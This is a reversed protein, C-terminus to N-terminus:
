SPLRRVIIHHPLGSTADMFGPGHVDFGHRRYFDLATDRARAWVVPVTLAARACGAELLMAGYGHGRAAADTAMGRLQVAAGNGFPRRIWTSISVLEDGERIGLHVTGEEEDGDFTVVDSPTGDRLVRRRLAYTEQATVEVLVPETV